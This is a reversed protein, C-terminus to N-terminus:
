EEGGFASRYLTAVDLPIRYEKQLPVVIKLHNGAILAESGELGFNKDVVKPINQVNPANTDFTWEYTYTVTSASVVFDIFKVQYKMSTLLMALSESSRRAYMATKEEVEKIQEKRDVLLSLPFASEYQTDDVDDDETDFLYKDKVAVQARITWRTRDESTEVVGFKSKAGTKRTATLNLDKILNELELLAFENFPINFTIRSSKVITFGDLSQRTNINIRMNGLERLAEVRAHKKPDDDNSNSNNIARKANRLQKRYDLSRLIRRKLIAAEIDNSLVDREYHRWRKLMAFLYIVLTFAIVIFSGYIAWQSLTIMFKSFSSIFEYAMLKANFSGSTGSKTNSFMSVIEQLLPSFEELDARKTETQADQKAQQNADTTLTIPTEKRIQKQAYSDLGAGCCWIILATLICLLCNIITNIRRPGNESNRYEDNDYGREKAVKLFTNLTEM